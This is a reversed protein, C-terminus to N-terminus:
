LEFLLFKFSFLEKLALLLKSEIFLIKLISFEMSSFLKNSIFIEIILLLSCFILLLSLLLLTSLIVYLSSSFVILSDFSSHISLLFSNKSPSYIFLTLYFIKKM